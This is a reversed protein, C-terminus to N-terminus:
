TKYNNEESILNIPYHENFEANCYGEITIKEHKAEQYSSLSDLYYNFPFRIDMYNIEIEIEENAQFTYNFALFDKGEIEITYTDIFNKENINIFASNKLDRNEFNSCDGIYCNLGDSKFYMISNFEENRNNKLKFYTNISNRRYFDDTKDCLINIKADELSIGPKSVTIIKNEEETIDFEFTVLVSATNLEGEKSTYHIDKILFEVGDIMHAGHLEYPFSQKLMTQTSEGNMMM